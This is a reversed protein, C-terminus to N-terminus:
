TTVPVSSFYTTKVNSTYPSFRVCKSDGDTSYLVSIIKAQGNWFVGDCTSTLQQQPTPTRASDIKIQDCEDDNPITEIHKPAM